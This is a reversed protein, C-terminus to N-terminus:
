SVFTCVFMGPCIRPGGNFPLYGFGPRVTEWREPKFENVDDGWIDRRRHMSFVQYVVRAGKPLFVPDTGNKGGGTPLITDKTAVRANFPVPPYLRLVEKIVWNMYRMDKIEQYTPVRGEFMNVERRLKDMVDPM